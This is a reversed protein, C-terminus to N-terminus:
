YGLLQRVQSESQIGPTARRLEAGGQDTVVLQPLSRIGFQEFRPLDNGETTRYYVVEARPGLEAAMGRLVQDQLQCPRGNPNMFFVLRPRSAAAPRSPAPAPAAHAPLSPAPTPASLADSCGPLALTSVLLAVAFSLPKM